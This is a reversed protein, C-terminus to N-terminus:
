TVLSNLIYFAIIALLFFLILGLSVLLLRREHERRKRQLRRVEAQRAQDLALMEDMRRRAELEEKQRLQRIAPARDSWRADYAQHHRQAVADLVDREDGASAGLDAFPDFAPEKAQEDAPEGTPESGSTPTTGPQESNM